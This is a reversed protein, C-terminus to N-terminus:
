ANAVSASISNTHRYYIQSLKMREQVAKDLERKIAVIQTMMSEPKREAMLFLLNQKLIAIHEDLVKVAEEFELTM